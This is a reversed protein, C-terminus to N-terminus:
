RILIMACGRKVPVTLVIRNGQLEPDINIEQETGPHIVHYRISKKLLPTQKLSVTVYHENFAFVIPICYGDFTKFINAKADPSKVELINPELVWKKGRLQSLLPGYNLYLSDVWPDPKLSHDNSPFPAMPFVGMYLFKQMAWDPNPKYQGADRVWGLVPKRIGLLGVTNLSSGGYTFEDFLGDIHKLHELRKVHNNVYIVKNQNHFVPALKNMLEMWSLNMSSVPQDGMWSVLDDRHHNYMRLWDMRDICIGSADPILEIHKKAMGLLHNQYSEVGPDMVVAKGWTWFPRNPETLGYVRSKYTSQQPPTLLIADEFHTYLYGNADKWLEAPDESLLGPPPYMINTGFETVNFYSLVHFGLDKMQRSYDRLKPLSILSDEASRGFGYWEVSDGVPPLFMGMYPFDRSAKWNVSFAMKRYKEVDFDMWNCSYAGTGAISDAIAVNPDFFDPYQKYAYGLAARWDAEHMVIEYNFRISRGKGLRHNLHVTKLEGSESSEMFLDLLLDNPSQLMTIGFGHKEEIITAMPICYVDGQFPCYGTKPDEYRYFPAGYYFFQNRFPKPDLPDVWDNGEKAKSRIMANAIEENEYMGETINGEPNAWATWFRTDDGAPYITSIEIPTSWPEGNDTIEIEWKIGAESPTFRELLILKRNNGQLSKTFELGNKRTKSVRVDSLNFGGIDIGSSFALDVDSISIQKIDGKESFTAIFASTKIQRESSLTSNCAMAFILGSIFLSTLPWNALNRLSLFFTNSM